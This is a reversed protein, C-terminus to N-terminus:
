CKGALEVADSREWQSAGSERMHAARSVISMSHLVLELGGKTDM